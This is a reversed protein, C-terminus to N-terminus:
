VSALHKELNVLFADIREVHCAHSGELELVTARPYHRGLADVIARLWPSSQTGKVLLVPREFGEVEELGRANRGLGGQNALAGRHPLWREWMPHGRAESPDRVFGAIVLFEALDDETVSKGSVRAIFADVSATEEDAEPSSERLAWLAPPEILTLSRIQEPYTLSFEIMARAGGSWAAFDAVGIGLEDLTVRMSERETDDNYDAEVLEGRSGLENHVPQVRIARRKDALREQHPIWSLWGTLGGPVLVIPDGDGKVDHQLVRPKM